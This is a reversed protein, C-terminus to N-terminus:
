YILGHDHDLALSLAIFNMIQDNSLKFENISTTILFNGDNVEFYRWPRITYSGYKICNTTMVYDIFNISDNTTTFRYGRNARVLFSEYWYLYWFYQETALSIKAWNM